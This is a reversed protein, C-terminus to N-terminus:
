ERVAARTEVASLSAAAAAFVQETLSELLSSFGPEITEDAVAGALAALTEQGYFLLGQRLPVSYVALTVGYVLSHWGSAQGSEVAKLYRQVLRDDRLPRMRMLHMRGVQQSPRAFPTQRLSVALHQDQSILERLEGRAAHGCAEAIAPLELPLLVQELYNELFARPSGSKAASSSTLTGCSTVAGLPAGVQRLLASFEGLLNEAESRAAPL